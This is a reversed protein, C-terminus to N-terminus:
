LSNKKQKAEKARMKSAYDTAGKKFKEFDKKAQAQTIELMVDGSSSSASATQPADLGVRRRIKEREEEEKPLESIYPPPKAKGKAKGKAVVRLVNLQQGEAIDKELLKSGTAGTFDETGTAKAASFANRLGGLYEHQEKVEDLREKILQKGKVKKEEARQLQIDASDDIADHFEDIRDDYGEDFMDKTFNNEYDKRQRKLIEEKYGTKADYFQEKITNDRVQATLINNQQRQLDVFDTKLLNQYQPSARIFTATRDPKKINPGGSLYSNLVQDYTPRLTLGYRMQAITAM